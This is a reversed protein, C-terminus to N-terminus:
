DGSRPPHQDENPPSTAKSRRFLSGWIAFELSVSAPNGDELTTDNIQASVIESQPSLVGRTFHDAPLQLAEFLNTRGALAERLVWVPLTLKVNGNSLQEWVLTGGTDRRDEVDRLWSEYPAAYRWKDFRLRSLLEITTGDLPHQASSNLAVRARAHRTPPGLVQARLEISVLIAASINRHLTFAQQIAQTESVTGVGQIRGLVPSRDAGVCVTYPRDLDHQRAKEVLKRYLGHETVVRPAEEVLGGSYARGEPDYTFTATYTPRLDCIAKENPTLRVTDFFRRITESRLVAPVDHQAPLRRAYGGDDRDGDLRCSIRTTDIKEKAAARYLAAIFPQERQESKPFRGHLYTAEIWFGHSGLDVYIDPRSRGSESAPEYRVPAIRSVADIVILEWIAAARHVPTALNGRTAGLRQGIRSECAALLKRVHDENLVV